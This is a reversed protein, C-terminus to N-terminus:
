IFRAIDDLTKRTKAHITESEPYGVAILGAFRQDAPLGLLSCLKERNYMGIICTGLGLSAAELCINMRAAGLDSKAFYQSDLISRLAPMLVAHEELVVIFARAQSLFGNIGMQQGCAAVEAVLEPTEAVVFKWPQSNCASPALRAAEVCKVLKEHEVPKDSFKRCSQRRAALELFDQM